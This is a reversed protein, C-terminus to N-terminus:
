LRAEGHEPDVLLGLSHLFQMKKTQLYSLNHESVTGFLSEVGGIDIGHAQLEDFKLPNNSLLVIPRTRLMRLVAAVDVYSRSDLPHGLRLNAEATDLGNEQMVYTMAKSFLGIGRGEHDAVYVVGGAGQEVIQEFARTLQSGCDCRQSGFVDGTHCISHIRVKAVDAARFDGYTLVSSQQFKALPLTPLVRLLDEPNEPLGPHKLWAYWQFLVTEGAVKIPLQVPGCLVVREGSTNTTSQLRSLMASKLEPSLSPM